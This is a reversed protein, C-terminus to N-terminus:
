GESQRQSSVPNIEHQLTAIELEAKNLRDFISESLPILIVSGMISQQSDRARKLESFTVTGNSKNTSAFMQHHGQTNPHCRESLSKYHNLVGPLHSKDLKEILTVVNVTETHPHQELFIDDRNAFLRNQTLASIEALNREVLLRSLRREFDFLVAFTETLSRAALICTLFNDSNWAEAAGSALMVVRYLIAQEYTAVKWAIKSKAYPGKKRIESKRRSALRVIAGNIAALNEIAEADEGLRIVDFEACIGSV